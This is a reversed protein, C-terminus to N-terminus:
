RAIMGAKGRSSAGPPAATSSIPAPWCRATQPRAAIAPRAPCELRTSRPPWTRATPMHGHPAGRGQQPCVGSKAQRPPSFVTNWSRRIPSVATRSPQNSGTSHPAPRRYLDLLRVFFRCQWLPGRLRITLRPRGSRSGSSGVHSTRLRRSRQASAARGVSTSGLPSAARRPSWMNDHLCRAAM